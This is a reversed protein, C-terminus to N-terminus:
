LCERYDEMQMNHPILVTMLIAHAFPITSVDTDTQM